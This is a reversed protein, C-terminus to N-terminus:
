IFFLSRSPLSDAQLVPARPKIAPNPLAGPSPCPLGSWYEKRSFGMSLPAQRAIQMASTSYPWDMHELGHPSERSLAAPFMLTPLSPGQGWTQTRQKSFSTSFFFLLIDCGSLHLSWGGTISGALYWVYHSTRMKSTFAIKQFHCGRLLFSSVWAM